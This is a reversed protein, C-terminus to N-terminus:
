YRDILNAIKNSYPEFHMRQFENFSIFILTEVKDLGDIIENVNSSNMKNVIAESQKIKTKLNNKFKDRAENNLIHSVIKDELQQVEKHYTKTGLLFCFKYTYISWNGDEQRSKGLIGQFKDRRKKIEEKAFHSNAHDLFYQTYDIYMDKLIQYCFSNSELEIFKIIVNLYLMYNDILLTKIKAKEEKRKLLVAIITGLIITTIVGLLPIIIDKTIEYWTVAIIM